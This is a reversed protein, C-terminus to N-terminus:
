RLIIFPRVIPVTSDSPGSNLGFSRDGVERRAVGSIRADRSSLFAGRTRITWGVKLVNKEPSQSACLVTRSGSILEDLPLCGWEHYWLLALERPHAFVSYM